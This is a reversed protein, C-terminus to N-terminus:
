SAGGWGDGSPMKRELYSQLGRVADNMNPTPAFGGCRGLYECVQCIGRFAEGLRDGRAARATFVVSEALWVKWRLAGEAHITALCDEYGQSVLYLLGVREAYDLADDTRLQLEAIRSSNTTM